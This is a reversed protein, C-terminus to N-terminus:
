RAWLHLVQCGVDASTLTYSTGSYCTSGGVAGSRIIGSQPVGDDIKTDLNWADEPTLTPLDFSTSGSSAGGLYTVHSKNGGSYYLAYIGQPVRALPYNIGPKVSVKSGDYNGEILGALALHKWANVGESMHGNIQGSADGDCTGTAGGSAPCGNVDTGWFKTANNMDGPLAFYKDRFAMIATEFRQYDRSVSRLEAAHILSQGALIGGVLLGLIVLVISLEVLSFGRNSMGLAYSIRGGLAVM